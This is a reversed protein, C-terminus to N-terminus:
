VPLDAPHADHVLYPGCALDSGIQFGAMSLDWSVQDVQLVRCMLQKPKPNFDEDGGEDRSSRSM